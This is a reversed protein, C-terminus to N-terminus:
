ITKVAQRGSPTLSSQRILPDLLCANDYRFTYHGDGTETQLGALVKNSLVQAQRM